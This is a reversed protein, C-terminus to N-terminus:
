GIQSVVAMSYEIMADQYQFWELRILDLICEMKQVSISARAHEYNELQRSHMANIRGYEFQLADYAKKCQRAHRIKDTLTEYFSDSRMNHPRILYTHDYRHSWIFQMRESSM